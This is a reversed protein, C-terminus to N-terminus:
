CSRSHNKDWGDRSTARESKLGLHDRDSLESGEDEEDGPVDDSLMIEDEDPSIASHSGNRIIADLHAIHAAAKRLIVAKSDTPSSSPVVKRLAQFGSNISRATLM